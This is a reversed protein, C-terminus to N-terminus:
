HQLRWLFAWVEELLMIWPLAMMFMGSSIGDFFRALLYPITRSKM